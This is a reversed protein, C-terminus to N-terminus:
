PAAGGLRTAALRVLMADQVQEVARTPATFNNCLFSFLLMRGDATTVYGSLTRVKDLTGTKAHVNRAAPTGKM